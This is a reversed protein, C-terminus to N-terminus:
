NNLSNFLYDLNNELNYSINYKQYNNHNSRPLNNFENNKYIKKTDLLKQILRSYSKIQLPNNKNILYLIMLRNLIQEYYQISINNIEKDSIEKIFNILQEDNLIINKIKEDLINNKNENDNNDRKIYRNKNKNNNKYKDQFSDIKNLKIEMKNFNNNLYNEINNVTKIMTDNMNKIEHIKLNLVNLNNSNLDKEKNKNKNENNNKIGDIKNDRKQTFYNKEQFNDESDNMSKQSVFIFKKNKKKDGYKKKDESILQKIQSERNKFSFAREKLNTKSFYNNNIDNSIYNKININLDKSFNEKIIIDIIKISIIRIEKNPNSKNIKGYTLLKKYDDILENKNYLLLSYIIELFSKKLEINDNNIMKHSSPSYTLIKDFLYINNLLEKSYIAFNKKLKNILINVCQLYEKKSVFNKNKLFYFYERLLNVIINLIENDNMIDNYNEIFQGLFLFGCKQQYGELSFDHYKSKFICELNNNDILDLCLRLLIKEYKNNNDLKNNTMINKYSNQNQISQVNILIDGFIKSMPIFITETTHNIQSFLIYLIKTIYKLSIQHIFFYPLLILCEKKDEGNLKNTQENLEKIIYNCKENVYFEKKILYKFLAIGNLLTAKRSLKDYINILYDRISNNM